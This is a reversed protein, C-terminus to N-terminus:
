AKKKKKLIIIVLAVLEVALVAYVAIVAIKLAGGGKGDPEGESAAVSSHDSVNAEPFDATQTVEPESVSPLPQAELTKMWDGIVPALLNYGASNPHIGDPLNTKLHVQLVNNNFDEDNYLDLYPIGWKDCIDRAVDFYASMDSLSGITSTPIQFNIIYGFIATPYAKRAYQFLNELGGAFTTVDFTGDYGETMSGVPANDWADNVGGHLIVYDYTQSSQRKLQALVTNEGRCTSVSAGSKGTNVGRMHNANIIRGAWGVTRAYTPDQWECIAECISDGVFLVTKDNLVNDANATEEASVSLACISLCASLCLAVALLFGTKKM